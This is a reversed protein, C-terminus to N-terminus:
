VGAVSWLISRTGVSTTGTGRPRGASPDDRHGHDLGGRREVRHRHHDVSRDHSGPALRRRGQAEADREEDAQDRRQGEADARQVGVVLLVGPADQRADADAVDVQRAQRRLRRTPRGRPRRRTTRRRAPDDHGPGIASTMVYASIPRPRCRAPQDGLRHGDTAAAIGGVPRDRVRSRGEAAHARARM